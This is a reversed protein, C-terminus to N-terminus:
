KKIRKKINSFISEVITVISIWFKEHIRNFLPRNKWSSLKIEKSQKIDKRIITVVSRAFNKDFVEQNAELNRHLSWRDLNSSGISVWEDCVYIKSHNFKPQYEFIRIGHSLLSAYYHRGMQRVPPLDTTKGPLLITVIVGRDVARKLAHRLRWTPIFYATVIFVEKKAINIQKITSSLIDKFNFRKSYILRGAQLMNLRQGSNNQMKSKFISQIIFSKKHKKSFGKFFLDIWDKVCEGEIKIIAEHWLQASKSTSYFNDTIGTGGTYAVNSDIIIIKRHDRFINRKFKSIRFRNYFKIRVYQHNLKLTDTQFVKRSGMFDFILFIYVNENAKQLLAAIIIDHMEGPEVLYMEIAIYWEANKIKDLIEPFFNKGDM